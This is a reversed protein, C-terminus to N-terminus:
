PLYTLFSHPADEILNYAEPIAEVLDLARLSERHKRREALEGALGHLFVGLKLAEETPLGRGLLATLVGSLVDGVGGKAMAPTGRVSLYVRGEPSAIATRSSKLVLWCKYSVAFELAVETLNEVIYEKELGTLRQFEGVHPTLVTPYKREKLLELGSTTLNNLADADLLLPRELRLLLERVIEGGEEYWGMGMGLAVASFREQLQLVQGVSEKSLRGEGKLPISMEEVLSTEFISNLDQPVGVSVLGAGTRTSARACMIVAGTKGRSGGLILVHGMKGKHTDPERQPARVSLLVERHLGEALWQPIGINAVYVKGCRKSAPHLLHCLKPFQFTVTIDARVSPEFDRGSDSSLGSPLDVAVVPLGSRNILEIWEVARGKVP